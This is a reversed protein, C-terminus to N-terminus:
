EIGQGNSGGESNIYNSLYVLVSTFDNYADGITKYSSGLYNRVSASTVNSQFFYSSNNEIERLSDDVNRSISEIYSVTMPAIPKLEDPVDTQLFTLNSLYCSNMVVSQFTSGLNYIELSSYYNNPTIKSFTKERQIINYCNSLGDNIMNYTANKSKSQRYKTLNSNLESLLKKHNSYYIDDEGIFVTSKLEESHNYNMILYFSALIFIVGTFTFALVKVYEKILKKM